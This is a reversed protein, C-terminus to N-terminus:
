VLDIIAKGKKVALERFGAAGGWSYKVYCIIYDARNIMWKNRWSIAFRPPINEIGEPFLTPYGQESLLAANKDLYALVVCYRLKPLRSSLEKLVSRVLRDFNGHCGVYFDLVGQEVLSLVAARIQPRVSEPCDGHGFFTCASM